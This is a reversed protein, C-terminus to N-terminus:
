YCNTTNGYTTCTIQRPPPSPNGVAVPFQLPPQQSVAWLGRRLGSDDTGSCAGVALALAIVVYKM